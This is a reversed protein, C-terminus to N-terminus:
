NKKCKLLLMTRDDDFTSINKESIFINEIHQTNINDDSSHNKFIRELPKHGAMENSDRGKVETYGDTYFLLKDKEGLKIDMKMYDVEPLVGLITGTINLQQISNEKQNYYLPRLAGASSIHITNNNHTYGIISITAFVDSLSKDNYIFTNLKKLINQPNTINEKNLFNTNFLIISKLYAIYAPQIFWANWSKGMVDGIITLSNGDKTSYLEYYDGGPINNYCKHLIDVDIKDNEYRYTPKCNFPSKDAAQNLAHLYKTKLEFERSLRANIEITTLSQNNYKFIHGNINNNYLNNIANESTNQSLLFYVPIAIDTYTILKELIKIAWHATEDILIAWINENGLKTFLKKEDFVPFLEYNIKSCDINYNNWPTNCYILGGKEPELIQKQFTSIAEKNKISRNLLIKIKSIFIDKNLPKILYDDAGDKLNQVWIEEEKKGSIFIFPINTYEPMSRISRVLKNGDMQPMILDSIILDYYNKKVKLLADKGSRASDILFEQSELLSEILLITIDDDDVVLIHPIKDKNM